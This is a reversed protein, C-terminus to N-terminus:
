PIAVTAPTLRDHLDQKDLIIGLDGTKHFFAQL